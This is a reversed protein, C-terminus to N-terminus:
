ESEPSSLLDSDSEPNITVKRLSAARRLVRMMHDYEDDVVELYQPFNKKLWELAKGRDNDDIIREFTALQNHDMKEVLRRGVRFELVEYM